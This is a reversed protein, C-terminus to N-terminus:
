DRRRRPGFIMIAAVGSLVLAWTSPEPVATFELNNGNWAITSTEWGTTISGISVSTFAKTGSITALTYTGQGAATNMGAIDVVLSTAGTQNGGILLQTDTFSTAGSLDFYFHAGNTIALNNIGLNANNAVGITGTSSVGVNALTSAGFAANNGGVLAGASINAVERATSTSSKVMGTNDGTLTLTGAGSKIIDWGGDTAHGNTFIGAYTTNSTQALGFNRVTTAAASTAIYSSTNTGKLEVVGSNLYSGNAMAISGGDMNISLGTPLAGPAYQAKSGLTMNGGINNNANAALVVMSNNAATNQVTYTGRLQASGNFNVSRNAAAAPNYQGDLTGNLTITTASAATFTVNYGAAQNKFVEMGSLTKDGSVTITTSATLGAFGATTTGAGSWTTYTSGGIATAWNSTTSDDWTGTAGLAQAAPQTSSLYVVQASASGAFLAAGAATLLVQKIKM